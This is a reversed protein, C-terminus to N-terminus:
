KTLLGGRGLCVGKACLLGGVFASIGHMSVFGNKSDTVAWGLNGNWIEPIVPLGDWTTMGFKTILALADWTTM